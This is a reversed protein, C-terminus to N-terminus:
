RRVSWGSGRRSAVTSGTSDTGPEDPLPPAAAMVPSARAADPNIAVAVAVNMLRGSSIATQGSERRATSSRPPTSTRPLLRAAREWTAPFVDFGARRMTAPVAEDDDVVVAVRREAALRRVIGLKTQAAPRRDGPGRM